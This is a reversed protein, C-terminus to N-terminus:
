GRDALEAIVLQDTPFALPVNVHALPYFAARDADSCPILEGSLYTLEFWSGITHQSPNHFNSHVALTRGAHTGLGCEEAVERRAATRVDEHYEVYGCPICWLGSYTGTRRM